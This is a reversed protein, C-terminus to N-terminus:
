KAGGGSFIKSLDAYESDWQAQYAERGLWGPRLNLNQEELFRQFGESEVAAKADREFALIAEEPTGDFYFIGRGPGYFCEMGLEGACPIPKDYGKITVPDETFSMLIHLRGESLMRAAEGPGCIVCDIRGAATDELLTQGAQYQVLEITDGFAIELCANDLGMLSMLGCRLEGPHGAAYDHLEDYSQWPSDPATVLLNCDQVLRCLPHISHYVDYDTEGSIQMLLLSQTGLLFFYGDAPKTQAYQMGAIGGSGSKHEIVVDTGSVAQFAESFAQLTTDAGGGKGWPCTIDVQYEWVWDSATRTHEDPNSCASHLACMVCIMLLFMFMSIKKM